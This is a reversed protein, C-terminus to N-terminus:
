NRLASTASLAGDACNANGWSRWQSNVPYGPAFQPLQQCIQGAQSIIQPQDFAVNGPNKQEDAQESAISTFGASVQAQLASQNAYGQQTVRDTRNVNAQTFIWGAQWLGIFLAALLIVGAAVSAFVAVTMGLIRATGGSDYAM